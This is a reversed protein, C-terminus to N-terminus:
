NQVGTFSSLEPMLLSMQHLGWSLETDVWSSKPAQSVWISHLWIGWKRQKKHRWVPQSSCFGDVHRLLHQRKVLKVWVYWVPISPFPFSLPYKSLDSTCFLLFIISSVFVATSFLILSLHLFVTLILGSTLMYHLYAVSSLFTVLFRM